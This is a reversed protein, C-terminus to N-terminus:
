QPTMPSPYTWANAATWPDMSYWGHAMTWQDGSGAWTSGHSRYGSRGPNSNKWPQSRSESRAEHKGREPQGYGSAM